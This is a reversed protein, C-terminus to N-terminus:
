KNEIQNENNEEMYETNKEREMNKKEKMEEKKYNKIMELFDDISIDISRYEKLICVSEMEDQEEKLIEKKLRLEEIKEDIEKQKEINKRYKKNM